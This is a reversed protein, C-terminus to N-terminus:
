GVPLGLSRGDVWPFVGVMLGLLHGRPRSGKPVGLEDERGPWTRELPFRVRERVVWRPRAAPVGGSQGSRSPARSCGFRSRGSMGGV